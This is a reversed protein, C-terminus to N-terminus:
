RQLPDGGDDVEFSLRDLAQKLPVADTTAKAALDKIGALGDGTLNNALAMQVDRLDALYPLFADATEHYQGSILEFRASVNERRTQDQSRLSDDSTAAIERDWEAFYARGQRNLTKNECTVDNATKGLTNEAAMFVAYQNRLDPQPRSVLDALAAQSADIQAGGRATRSFAKTFNNTSGATKDSGDTACGTIAGVAITIAFLHLYKTNMGTTDATLVSTEM